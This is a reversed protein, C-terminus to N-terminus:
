RPRSRRACPSYLKVETLESQAMGSKGLCPVFRKNGKGGDRGGDGDDSQRNAWAFMGERIEAAVGAPDHLAIWGVRWGPLLFRKSLGSLTIVPVSTSVINAHALRIKPGLEM